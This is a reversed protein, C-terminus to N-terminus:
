IHTSPFVTEIRGGTPHVLGDRFLAEPDRVEFNGEPLRRAGLFQRREIVGFIGFRALYGAKKQEPTIIKYKSDYEM